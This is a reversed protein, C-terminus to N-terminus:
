AAAPCRAAPRLLGAPAFRAVVRVYGPGGVTVSTLGGRTPALCASGAAVRWYPTFRARVLLRGARTARLSFWDPGVSLLRGPGSVLPDAGRVRYVRWHRSRWMPELYPLGRRILRAEPIASYDLPADPLAVYAVGTRELWAHYPRARLASRYLVRNYKVDLQREWGRALPFRRAVFVHEWHDRTLPIEVRTDAARRSALFRNLPGYYAAQVAPDRIASSVDRVPASWQWYLAPVALAALAVPRRQWLALALVPGGFLTGLRAANGGM